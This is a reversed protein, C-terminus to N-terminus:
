YNGAKSELSFALLVGEPRGGEIFIVFVFVDKWTIMVYYM